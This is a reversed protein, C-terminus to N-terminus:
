LPESVGREVKASTINWVCVASDKGISAFIVLWVHNWTPRLLFFCKM